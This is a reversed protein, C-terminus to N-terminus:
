QATINGLGVGEGYYIYDGIDTSSSVIKLQLGYNLPVTIQRPYDGSKIEYEAVSKGDVIFHITGGTNEQGDIPGMTMTISQYQANLNFLAYADSTTFVVGNTYKVGAMSFSQLDATQYADCGYSTEYPPCVDTFYNVEGPAGGIYVTKTNGDWIVRKGIAEGVARVPLYTTGQYIFPEVVTGNSDKPTIPVNDVMLKIDNYQVTIQKSVANAALAGGTTLTTCAGLAILRKGINKIM